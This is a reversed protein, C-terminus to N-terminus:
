QSLSEHSDSKERILMVQTVTRDQQGANESCRGACRGVCLACCNKVADVARGFCNVVTRSWVRLAQPSYTSTEILNFSM